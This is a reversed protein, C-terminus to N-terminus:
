ALEQLYQQLYPIEVGFVRWDHAKFDLWYTIFIGIDDDGVPFTHEICCPGSNLFYVNINRLINRTSLSVVRNKTVVKSHMIYTRDVLYMTFIRIKVDCLLWAVCLAGLRGV